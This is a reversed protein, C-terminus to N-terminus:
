ASIAQRRRRWGIFGVAAMVLGPLGAGVIPGPVPSAESVLPANMILGPNYSNFSDNPPTLAISFYYSSTTTDYYPNGYDLGGNWTFLLGSSGTASFFPASLNLVNDYAWRPDGPPNSVIGDIIGSYTAFVGFGTVTGTIGTVVNSADTTAQFNLDFGSIGNHTQSFDIVAARAPVAGTLAAVAIAATTTLLVHKM